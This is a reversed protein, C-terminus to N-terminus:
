KHFNGTSDTSNVTNIPLITYFGSVNHPDTYFKHISFCSNRVTSVTNQPRILHEEPGCSQVSLIVACYRM